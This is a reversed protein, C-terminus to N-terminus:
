LNELLHFFFRHIDTGFPLILMGCFKGTQKKIMFRSLQAGHREITILLEENELTFVTGDSKMKAGRNYEMIM